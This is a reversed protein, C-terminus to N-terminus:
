FRCNLFPVPYRAVSLSDAAGRLDYALANEYASELLGSGINWHLELAIGIIKYSLDNEIM